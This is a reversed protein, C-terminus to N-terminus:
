LLFYKRFFNFIMKMVFVNVYKRPFQELNKEIGHIVTVNHEM